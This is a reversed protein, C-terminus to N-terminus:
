RCGEKGRARRVGFRLALNGNRLPVMVFPGEPFEVRQSVLEKRGGKNQFAKWFFGERYGLVNIDRVYKGQCGTISGENM